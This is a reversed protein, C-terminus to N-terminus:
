ELNKENIIQINLEKMKQKIKEVSENMERKRKLGHVIVKADSLKILKRNYSNVDYYIIKIFLNGLWTKISLKRKKQFIGGIQPSYKIQHYYLKKFEPKSIYKIVEDERQKYSVMRKRMLKKFYLYRYNKVGFFNFIKDLLLDIKTKKIGHVDSNFLKSSKQDIRLENLMKELRLVPNVNKENNKM